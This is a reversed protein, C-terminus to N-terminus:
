HYPFFPRLFPKIVPRWSLINGSGIISGVVTQVGPPCAGSWALPVIASLLQVTSVLLADANLQALTM